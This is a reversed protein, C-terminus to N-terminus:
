KPLFRQHDYLRKEAIYNLVLQYNQEVSLSQNYKSQIINEIRKVEDEPLSKFYSIVLEKDKFDDWNISTLEEHTPNSEEAKEKYENTKSFNNEAALNDEQLQNEPNVTVIEPKKKSTFLANLDASNMNVVKNFILGIGIVIAAKTLFQFIDTGLLDFTGLISIIGYVIFTFGLIQFLQKHISNMKSLQIGLLICIVIIAFNSIFLLIAGLISSSAFAALANLSQGEEFSTYIMFSKYIITIQILTTIGLFIVHAKILGNAISYNFVNNILHKFILLIGIWILGSLVAFGNATFGHFWTGDVYFFEKYIAYVLLLVAYAFAIIVTSKYIKPLIKDKM